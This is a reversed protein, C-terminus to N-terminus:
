VKTSGESAFGKFFRTNSKKGVYESMKAWATDVGGLKFWKVIKDVNKQRILKDVKTKETEYAEFIDRKMWGLFHEISTLNLDYNLDNEVRSRPIDTLIKGSRLKPAIDGRRVEDYLTIRGDYFFSGFRGLSFSSSDSSFVLKDKLGLAEVAWFFQWMTTRGAMAFTHLLKGETLEGKEMLFLMQWIPGLAGSAKAGVAWGNNGVHSVQEYWMEMMAPSLGHMCNIFQEPKTGLEFQLSINEKTMRAYTTMQKMNLEQGPPIDGGIIYDGIRTQFTYMDERTGYFERQRGPTLYYFQFGGSDALIVVDDKKKYSKSKFKGHFGASILINCEGFAEEIVDKLKDDIWFSYKNSMIGCIPTPLVSLWYKIKM